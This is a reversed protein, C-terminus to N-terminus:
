KAPHATGTYGPLGPVPLPNSPDQLHFYYDYVDRVAYATDAGEEGRDVFAVVAIQPHDLPAFSVFYTDYTNPAAPIQATGTKGAVAMPFGLFQTAATDYPSLPLTADHMGTHIAQWDSAPLHVRVTVQPRYRWVVRGDPAVVKVALHPRYGIGDNAIAGVYQLLQIPTVELAAQGIGLYYNVAPPFFHDLSLYWGLSPLFGAYEGPLDVGTPRGFGLARAWRMLNTIGVMKGVMYFYSDCSQAIAKALDNWGTSYPYTWNHPYPPYPFVAYGYLETSPTIKGEELGAIATAMKFTSGPPLQVQTAYNLLPSAAGPPPHILQNYQAQTMGRVFLYPDVSPYSVMALIQGTHVDMVLLSGARAPKHFVTRIRELTAVLAEYAVKELGYDIGLVLTDGRRPPQTSLTKVPQGAVNVEVEEMGPTGQLYRGYQAELGAAAGSPQVYGLFSSTISGLPYYRSALPLVSVGPLHPLDQAVSTVEQPSLNAKLVAPQAPNLRIAQRVQDMDAPTLSLLKELTAAEGPPPTQGYDFYTAAFSPQNGALVQGGRAVILGRPAPLVLGRIANADAAALFANHQVIDLQFLETLLVLAVALVFGGFVTARRQRIRPDVCM